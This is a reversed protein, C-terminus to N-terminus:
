GGTIFDIGNTENVKNLFAITQKVCSWVNKHVETGTFRIVRWNNMELWRQRQADSTRQEKTKHYDHGDLEVCVRSDPFAFDLFFRGAQFQPVPRLGANWAAALFSEEIPSQCKSFDPKPKKKPVPEGRTLAWYCGNCPECKCKGECECDECTCEPDDDGDGIFRIM